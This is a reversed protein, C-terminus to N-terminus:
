TQFPPLVSEEIVPKLTPVYETITVSEKPHSDEIVSSFGQQKSPSGM